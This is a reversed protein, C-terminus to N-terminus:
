APVRRRIWRLPFRKRTAEPVLSEVLETHSAPAPTSPAILALQVRRGRESTLRLDTWRISSGPGHGVLFRLGLRRLLPAAGVEVGQVSLSGDDPVLEVDGVRTIRKGALDVIQADLVHRELLLEQDSLTAVPFKAGARMRTAAPGVTAVDEWEVDAVAGRHRRVRLRVARPHPELRTVVDVLRGVAEGEFDLVRRGLLESLRLM